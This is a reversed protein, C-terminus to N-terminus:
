ATLDGIQVRLVGASDYVKIVNNKIEMRAGASASKVDLTGVFTGSAAQLAGSFTGTAGYLAGTFTVDGAATMSMGRGLVVSGDSNLRFGSEGPIYDVSRIHDSALVIGGISGAGAYVTGRVTANSFEANGNKFVAWGAQGPEYNESKLTGGITGDGVTLKSASIDIIKANDVALNAIMANVIQGNHFFADSAYIGPHVISGDPLVTEVDVVKFPNGPGTLSLIAGTVNTATKAQTGDTSNFAGTVNAASVFRVWYYRVSSPEGIADIFSSMTSTGILVANGIVDTDSSWVEAYAHNGYAAAAWEVMINTFTGTATVGSPAPPVTMDSSPNYAGPRAAGVPVVPSGGALFAGTAAEALGSRVLDRFTVNADMKDGARGERVDLVGKVARAFEALNTPTVAPISPTKTEASM